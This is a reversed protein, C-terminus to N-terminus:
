RCRMDDDKCQGLKYGDSRAKLRGKRYATAFADKGRLNNTARYGRLFDYYGRVFADHPATGFRCSASEAKVSVRLYEPEANDTTKRM